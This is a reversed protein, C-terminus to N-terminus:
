ARKRPKPTSVAQGLNDALHTSLFTKWTKLEGGADFKQKWEDQFKRIKKEGRRDLQKKLKSDSKLLDRSTYIDSIQGLIKQVDQLAELKQELPAGYVPRFLELAYRFQKTKVRFDHLDAASRGNKVAKRGAHFYKVALAPLRKVANDSTSDNSSWNM